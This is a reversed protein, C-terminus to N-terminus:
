KVVQQKYKAFPMSKWAGEVVYRGLQMFENVDKATGTFRTMQRGELDCFAFVPTARVRQEAAFKKETTVKGAFDM